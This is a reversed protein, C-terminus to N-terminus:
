GLMDDLSSLTSQSQSSVFNNRTTEMSEIEKRDIGQKRDVHDLVRQEDIAPQLNSTELSQQEGNLLTALRYNDNQRTLIRDKDLGTDRPISNNLQSYEYNEYIYHDKNFMRFTPDSDDLKAFLEPPLNGGTHKDGLIDMGFGFSLFDRAPIYSAGAKSRGRHANLTYFMTDEELEEIAIRRMLPTVMDTLQQQATVTRGDFNFCYARIRNNLYVDLIKNIFVRPLSPVTGMIPKNGMQLAVEIFNKINNLYSTFHISATGQGDEKIKKLLEPMLPVTVFESTSYILDVLYNLNGKPIQDTSQYSMFVVNVEDQRGKNLSRRINDKLSTKHKRQAEELSDKDIQFYHENFGRAEESIQDKKRSKAIPIAKCPTEIKKSGIKITKHSFLTDDDITRVKVQFKGM